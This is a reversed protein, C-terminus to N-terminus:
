NRLKSSFASIQKALVKFSEQLALTDIKYVKNVIQLLAVVENASGSAIRLYHKFQKKTRLYGEAINATISISARRLQDSLSWDSNLSKNKRILSYVEAVLDISNNYIQLKEM